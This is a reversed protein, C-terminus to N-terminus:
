KYGDGFSFLQNWRVQDMRYINKKDGKMALLLYLEHNGLLYISNEPSRSRLIDFVEASKADRDFYDGLFIVRDADKVSEQNLIQRLKNANGHVDGIAVNVPLRKSTIKKLKLAMDFRNILQSRALDKREARFQKIVGRLERSSSATSLVANVIRDGAPPINKASVVTSHDEFDILILEEGNWLANRVELDRHEGNSLATKVKTFIEEGKD